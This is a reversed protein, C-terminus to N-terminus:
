RDMGPMERIRLDEPYEGFPVKHGNRVWQKFFFKVGEAKCQDRIGRVWDLNMPRAGPGSEGGVIVWDVKNARFNMVTPNIVTFLPEYSLFRVKAPFHVIHNIRDAVDMTIGSWVNDPWIPLKKNLVYIREPRKTLVQFL